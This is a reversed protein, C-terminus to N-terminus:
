KSSPDAFFHGHLFGGTEPNRHYNYNFCGSPCRLDFMAKADVLSLAANCEPCHWQGAQGELIRKVMDNIAQCFRDHEEKRRQTWLYLTRHRYRPIFVDNKLDRRIELKVEDRSGQRIFAFEFQYVDKVLSNPGCFKEENVLSTIAGETTEYAEDVQPLLETELYNSFAEKFENDVARRHYETHFPGFKITAFAEHMVNVLLKRM